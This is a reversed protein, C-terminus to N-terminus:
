LGATIRRAPLWLPHANNGSRPYAMAGHVTTYTGYGVIDHIPDTGLRDYPPCRENPCCWRATPITRPRGPGRRTTPGAGEVVEAPSATAKQAQMTGGMLKQWQRRLCQWRRRRQRHWRRFRRLWQELRGPKRKRWRRWRKRRRRRGLQFAREAWMDWCWCSPTLSLDRHLSARLRDLSREPAIPTEPVRGARPNAPSNGFGRSDVVIHDPTSDAEYEDGLHHNSVTHYALFKRSQGNDLPLVEFAGCYGFSSSLAHGIVMM